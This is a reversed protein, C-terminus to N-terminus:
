WESHKFDSCSKHKEFQVGSDSIRDPEIDMGRRWTHLRSDGRLQVVWSVDINIYIHPSSLLCLPVLGGREPSKTAKSIAHKCTSRYGLDFTSHPQISFLNPNVLLLLNPKLKEQMDKARTM